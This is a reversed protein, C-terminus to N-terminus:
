IDALNMQLCKPLTVEAPGRSAGTVSNYEARAVPACKLESPETGFGLSCGLYVADSSHQRRLYKKQDFLSFMDLLFNLSNNILFM